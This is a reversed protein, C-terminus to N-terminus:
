DRFPMGMLKLLQKAEEDTKATTVITVTMGKIYKIKTYPVEPFITHERIGISYNGRGDFGKSYFGKFDKARPMAVNILRDFFDYMMNRRLTVAIGINDGKKLHFAAISKRAKRFVPKQGTILALDQMAEEIYKQDDKWKGIGMNVVIKYLRPVQLPNKYKFIEMMKPVVFEFYRRKLRPIYRQQQEVAQM